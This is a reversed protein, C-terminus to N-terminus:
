AGPSMYFSSGCGFEDSQVDSTALGFDCLKVTYGRDTVLINEPKLDRHYIQLQHCHEVAGLIQLYVRKCLEDHGVYQDHETINVFLDGGPCYELIIFICDPDNVIKLIPIINPHASVLYHLRIERQQNDAQKPEARDSTLKSLCKVAYRLTTNIDITSYVVGYAGAGLITTLRLRGDVLRGLRGVATSCPIAHTSLQSRSSQHAHTTRKTTATIATVPDVSM